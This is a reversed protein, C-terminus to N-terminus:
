NVQYKQYWTKMKGLRQKPRKLLTLLGEYLHHRIDRSSEVSTITVKLKDCPHKEVHLAVHAAESINQVGIFDRLPNTKCWCHTAKTEKSLLLSHM